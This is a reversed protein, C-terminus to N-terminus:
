VALDTECASIDSVAFRTAFSYQTDSLLGSATSITGKGEKPSGQWQASAKRKM